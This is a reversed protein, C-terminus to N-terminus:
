RKISILRKIFPGITLGQVIISFMVVAYTITVIFDREPSDPLSLALAISIGGRLGGWTLFSVMPINFRKFMSLMFIPLGVSIFRALLTIVIVICGILISYYSMKIHLFELGILVFLISNMVEDILDWFSYIRQSTVPKIQINKLEGGIILGSIVMSIPGSVNFISSATINGFACIGITIFIAIDDDTTTKLLYAGLFGLIIGLVIGGGGHQLLYGIFSSLELDANHENALSTFILFLVIGMGDNFLAEGAIRVELAKPANIRKLIGLVAIPDTPSILAGFILCNKISIDIGFYNSIYYTSYGIFISSLLVGFTALLAIVFKHKKLEVINIHLSGAFLLFGLMGHLFTENFQVSDILSDTFNSIDSSMTGILLLLLSFLMTTITIGISKPLKIVRHNLYSSIATISLLISITDQTKM